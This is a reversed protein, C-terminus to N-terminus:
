LSSAALSLGLFTLAAGNIIALLRPTGAGFTGLIASLPAVILLLTLVLGQTLISSGAIAATVAAATVAALPVLNCLLAMDFIRHRWPSLRGPELSHGRWSFVLSIAIGALLLYGVIRM